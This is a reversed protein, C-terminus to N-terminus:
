PGEARLGSIRQCSFWYITNDLYYSILFHKHGDIELVVASQELGQAMRDAQLHDLSQEVVLAVDVRDHLLETDRLRGGRLMQGYQLVLADQLDALIADLDAVPDM